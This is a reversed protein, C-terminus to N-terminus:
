VFLGLGSGPDATSVNGAGGVDEELVEQRGLSRVFLRLGDLGHKASCSDVNEVACLGRDDRHAARTDRGADDVEGHHRTFGLTGDGNVVTRPGLPGRVSIKRANRDIACLKGSSRHFLSGGFM